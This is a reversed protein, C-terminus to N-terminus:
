FDRVVKAGREARHFLPKATGQPFEARKERGM